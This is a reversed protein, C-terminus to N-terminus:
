KKIPIFYYGSYVNDKETNKNKSCVLVCSTKPKLKERVSNIMDRNQNSDFYVFATDFQSVGDKNKGKYISQNVRIYPTGKTTKGEDLFAVSGIIASINRRIEWEDGIKFNSVEGNQFAIDIDVGVEAKAKIRDAFHYGKEPNKFTVKTEDDLQIIVSGNVEEINMIIGSKEATPENEQFNWEGNYKFNIANAKKCEEDRFTVLVSIFSGVKVKAGKVRDALKKSMDDSNWFAIQMGDDLKINVVKGTASGTGEAYHSVIGGVLSMNSGLIKKIIIM